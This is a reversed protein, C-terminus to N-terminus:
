APFLDPMVTSIQTVNKPSGIHGCLVSRPVPSARGRLRRRFYRFAESLRALDVENVLDLTSGINDRHELKRTCQFAEPVYNLFGVSNNKMVSVFYYNSDLREFFTREDHVEDQRDLVVRGDQKKQTM